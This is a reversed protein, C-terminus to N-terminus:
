NDNDNDYDDTQKNKESAQAETAAVNSGFLVHSSMALQNEHKEGV